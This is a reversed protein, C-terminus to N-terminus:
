WPGEVIEAYGPGAVDGGQVSESISVAARKLRHRDREVLSNQNGHDHFRHEKTHALSMGKAQIRRVQGRNCSYVDDHEAAGEPDQDAAARRRDEIAQNEGRDEQESHCDHNTM